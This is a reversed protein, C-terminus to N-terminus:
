LIYRCLYVVLVVHATLCLQFTYIYTCVHKLQLWSVGGAEIFQLLYNFLKSLGAVVAIKGCSKNAHKRSNSSSGDSVIDALIKEM